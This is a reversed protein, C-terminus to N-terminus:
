GEPHPPGRFGAERVMALIAPHLHGNTAFGDGAHISPEGNWGTFSGGAEELVPQLAAADWLALAPDMMVDARGTAVLAYGYCDGWTRTSRCRARIREFVATSGRRSFGEPSTVLFLAEELTLVSSVRAPRPDEEGVKWWAGEGRAAYVTEGCAPLHIVGAVGRGEREVAVLTGFLPIGRTFSRTGDVPDLIWRYGSTGPSEGLEEGLIGDGPFAAELRRRLHAEAERDALTVPSADPKWEVGLDPSRFRGLVLDGAERATRVAVELRRHIEPSEAPPNPRPAMM